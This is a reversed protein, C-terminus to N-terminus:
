LIITINYWSPSLLYVVLLYTLPKNNNNDEEMNWYNLLNRRLLNNYNFYVSFLLLMIISGIIFNYNFFYIYHLLLLIVSCALYEYTAIAIYLLLLIIITIIIYNISYNINNDGHCLLCYYDSNDVIYLVYQPKLNNKHVHHTIIINIILVIYEAKCCGFINNIRLLLACYIDSWKINFSTVYYSKYLINYFISTYEVRNSTNECCLMYELRM